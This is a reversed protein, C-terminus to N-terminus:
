APFSSCLRLICECINQIVHIDNTALYACQISCLRIRIAESNVAGDLAPPIPCCVWLRTRNSIESSLEPKGQTPHAILTVWWSALVLQEFIAFQKQRVGISSVQCSIPWTMALVYFLTRGLDFVLGSKFDACELGRYYGIKQCLKNEWPYEGINIYLAGLCFGSPGVGWFLVGVM